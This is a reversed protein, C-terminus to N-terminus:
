GAHEVIETELKGGKITTKLQEPVPCEQYDWDEGAGPVNINIASSKSTFIEIGLSEKSVYVTGGDCQDVQLNPAKGMIQMAFNNSKIVEISSVLNDVIINTKVCENLSVANIKGKIQITTNKCRFIFVSHNIEVDELTLLQENEYNEQPAFVSNVCSHRPITPAFTSSVIYWKSGDLERKPPKKKTLHAPKSKSPPAPSKARLSPSSKAPVISSARLSPNKHTMEDKNVKRLGATVDSGRNIEAFVSGIDGGAPAGPGDLAGPPPLPPPPPPPPPPPAGGTPSPGQSAASPSSALALAEKADIGRANWTV